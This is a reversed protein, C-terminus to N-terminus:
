YLTELRLGTFHYGCVAFHNHVEGALFVNPDRFDTERVSVLEGSNQFSCLVCDANTVEEVGSAPTGDVLGM